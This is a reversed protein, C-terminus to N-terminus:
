QNLTEIEATIAKLLDPDEKLRAIVQKLGQGIRQDGFSYFNGAKKIVEQDVGKEITDLLLQNLEDSPDEGQDGNEQPDEDPDPDAAKTNTKVESRQITYITMPKEGGSQRAHLQAANKAHPLFIQGDRTAMVSDANPNNEFVEKAMQKLQELSYTKKM